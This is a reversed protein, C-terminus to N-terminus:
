QKLLWFKIMNDASKVSGGRIALGPLVKANPCLKKIDRESSGLGSGEHTCYPIITKGSFDYSELFTFVAMPFTGWWNPYGLYIVDYADMDDVVETLEPRVNKRKEDMAVNTTETYDEPYPKVTDIEFLDSGTIEQIKKAVVETNGVSLNVISGNLYNNGKRSYYAILSKSNVM